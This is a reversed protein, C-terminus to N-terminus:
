PRRPPQFQGRLHRFAEQNDDVKGGVPRGCEQCLYDYKNGGPLVLLLKKRVPQARRCHPCFLSSAEFEEYSPEKM